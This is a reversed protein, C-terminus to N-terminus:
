EGMEVLEINEPDNLADLMKEIAILVAEDVDSAEVTVELKFTYKYTKVV